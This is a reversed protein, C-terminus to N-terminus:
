KKQTSTTTDKQSSKTGSGKQQNPMQEKQEEGQQELQRLLPSDAKPNLMQIKYKVSDAEETITETSKYDLGFAVVLEAVLFVISMFITLIAFETHGKRQLADLYSKTVEFDNKINHNSRYSDNGKYKSNLLSQAYRYEGELRLLTTSAEKNIKKNWRLIIFIFLPIFILAVFLFIGHHTSFYPEWLWWALLPTLIAILLSCIWYRVDFINLFQHITEKLTDSRREVAVQRQSKFHGDFGNIYHTLADRIAPKWADRNYPTKQIDPHQSLPTSFLSFHADHENDHFEHQHFMSKIQHYVCDPINGNEFINYSNSKLPTPNYTYCMMGNRSYHCYTLDLQQIEPLNDGQTPKLDSLKQEIRKVQHSWYNRKVKAWTSIHKQEQEYSLVELKRLKERQGNLEHILKLIKPDSCQYITININYCQTGTEPDKISPILTIKGWFDLIAKLDASPDATFDSIRFLSGDISKGDEAKNLPEIWEHVLTPIWAICIHSPTSLTSTEMSNLM